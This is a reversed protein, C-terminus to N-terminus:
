PTAETMQINQCREYADNLIKCFRSIPIDYGRLVTIAGTVLMVTIDTSTGTSIVETHGDETLKFSIGAPKM